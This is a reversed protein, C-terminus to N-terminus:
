FFADSYTAVVTTEPLTGNTLLDYTEKGVTLTTTNTLTNEEGKALHGVSFILDAQQWDPAGPPTNLYVAVVTNDSAATGINTVTLTVSYIITLNAPDTEAVSTVTGYSLVPSGPEGFIAFLFLFSGIVILPIYWKM